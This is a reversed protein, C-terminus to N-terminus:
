KLLSKDESKPAKAKTLDTRRPTRSGGSKYDGLLILALMEAPDKKGISLSSHSHHNSIDKEKM